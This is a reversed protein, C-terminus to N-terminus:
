ALAHPREAVAMPDCVMTELWGGPVANAQRRMARVIMTASMVRWCVWPFDANSDGATSALRLPGHRRGDRMARTGEGFEAQGPDESTREDTDDTATVPQQQFVRFVVELEAVVRVVVAEAPGDRRLIATPALLVHLGAVFRAFASPFLILGAIVLSAIWTAPVGAVLGGLTIAILTIAILTIILTTDADIQKAVADIVGLRERVDIGALREIIMAHVRALARQGLAAAARGLLELGAEILEGFAGREGVRGLLDLHTACGEVLAGGWKGLFTGDFGVRVELRAELLVLQADRTGLVIQL